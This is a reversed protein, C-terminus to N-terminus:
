AAAKQVASCRKFSTRILEVSTGKGFLLLGGSDFYAFNDTFHSDQCRLTGGSIRGGGGSNCAVNGNIHCRLLDLTGGLM